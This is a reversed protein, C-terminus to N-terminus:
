YYKLPHSIPSIGNSGDTGHSRQRDRSMLIHDYLLSLLVAILTGYAMMKGMRQLDTRTYLDLPSAPWPKQGKSLMPEYVHQAVLDGVGFLVGATSMQMIWPYRQMAKGYWTM